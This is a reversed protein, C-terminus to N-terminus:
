APMEIDDRADATLAPLPAQVNGHPPVDWDLHLREFDGAEEQFSGLPMVLECEIAVMAVRQRKMQDTRAVPRASRVRVPEILSLEPALMSRSLVRIADIALQYSGPVAGDGHRTDEENRKNSSAVVVVFRSRAQFGLGDGDDRGDLLGLFTAWCAPTRLNPNENLYEEFQDPFTEHVRYTYGLQGDEGAQKLANVLALETAAIM